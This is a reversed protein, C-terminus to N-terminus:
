TECQPKQNAWSVLQISRDGYFVSGVQGRLGKIRSFFFLFSFRDLALVLVILVFFPGDYSRDGYFPYSDVQGTSGFRGTGMFSCLIFVFRGTGTSRENPNKIQESKRIPGTGFLALTRPNM